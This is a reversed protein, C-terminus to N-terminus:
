TMTVAIHATDVAIHVGQSSYVSFGAMSSTDPASWGDATFLHLTDGAKGDITLVNDLSTGNVNHNDPNIDLVDALHLTADTPGGRFGITEIGSIKGRDSTAPNGDLNGFDITGGFLLYLGDNGGGGDVHRFTKDAVTIQDNGQGAEFSDAGGGGSLFDDGGGVVFNEAAAKGNFSNSQENGAYTVSTAMDRGFLVYTAHNSYDSITLDSFGDGNIDGASAVTMGFGYSGNPAALKFGASATLNALDIHDGFGGAHGFVLYAEGPNTGSGNTVQHSSVVLDAFGDGNFDGAGAVSWGNADNAAAGDLRFGHAADLTTLDVTAGFGGSQGFVVYTAGANTKGAPDAAYVGVVLDALGDGNLDGASSVNTFGPAVMGTGDTVSVPAIKFGTTGNLGDVNLSAGFAGGHGFIVFSEGSYSKGKNAAGRAGLIIDDYGDGNIDGASAVSHGLLTAPTSSIIAVGNTGNLDSGTINAAFAGAHGFILYAQGPVNTTAGASGVLMDDYGDGNVDGAAAVSWGFQDGNGGGSVKFGNSGNLSALDFTTGLGAASGFVVHASGSANPSGFFPVGVIVDDYGDGNLDGASSVSWAAPNPGPTSTTFTTSGFSNPNVDAQFNGGHGYVIHGLPGGKNVGIILDDYGDGNVDGASAASVPSTTVKFGNTGDLKTLDPPAAGAGELHVHPSVVITLSGNTLKTFGQTGQNVWGGSLQLTDSSDGDILLTNPGNQTQEGGVLAAVAATDLKLTNAGGGVMSIYEVNSLKGHLAGTLDISAGMNEIFATDYGAGGDLNLLQASEVHIQDNGAAGEFSDLDGGGYFVDAFGTGVFAEAAATGLAGHFATGTFDGGFIVYSSGNPPNAGPAGIALDDYGDGNLDGAASVAAGTYDGAALADLKFGQAPTLKTLDLTANFSGGHGFVVYVDGASNIQGPHAVLFDDYGDGNVDGAASVVASAQLISFGNGGNLEGPTISPDFAGKHGFVVLGSNGIIIDDIGDGNIDGAGQASRGGSVVFGNSGNLTGLDFSTNFAGGHGFVVATSSIGAVLMDAFGDGDVDGAAAVSYGAQANAAPGDLRFGKTADLTALNVTADFAGAHGFIVYASGGSSKGSPDTGPAGIIIDTYGDGNVDGASAVSRGAQDGPAAGTIQFGNSGNLLPVQDAPGKGSHGFLVLASGNTTNPAGLILDAYGDGNIDGASSASSGANLGEIRFGDPTSMTDTNLVAPYAGAHGFVVAAGGGLKTPNGLLLDDYGDGDFDGINALWASGVPTGAGAGDIRFGNSGNLTDLALSGLGKVAVDSEVLLTADGSVFENYSGTQGLPNSVTGALTWGSDLTVSDVTDGKVLLAHDGFASGKTDAIALVSAPDIIVNQPYNSGNFALDLIEISKLAAGFAGGLDIDGGIADLTVTDLGTGGDVHVDVTGLVVIRDDGAEGLLTDWNAGIVTDNGDGGKLVNAGFNGSINNDLANGTGNLPDFGWLELNEVNAGLTYSISSTVVDVGGGADAALTEVVKDKSSDVVYRDDGAGGELVDGSTGGDLTDNGAGGYLTDTDSGGNLKDDGDDGSLTDSDADGSLEDNGTGGAIVDKGRDGSITDDGGAGDLDNAVSNGTIGNRLANGGGHKAVGTLTLYDLNEGLTYDISSIVQDFGGDDALSRSEVVVDGVHDVVYIDGGRGGIMLDANAGGDLTDNGDGGELTDLGAGGLLTDFGDLGKLTDNGENGILTNNGKNGLIVNASANGIGDIDVFGSLTLNELNAGLTYSISSQVLDIGGGKAVSTTETVVDSVDDVVYVDNGQGGEMRDAGTGGDLYDNGEGGRLIDAGGQGTLHDNGGQGNITDDSGNKGDVKNDLDNLFTVSDAHAISKGNEAASWIDVTEGVSAEGPFLFNGSAAINELEAITINNLRVRTDPVGDFTVYVDPGSQTLLMADATMGAGTFQLIDLESPSAPAAGPGFGGFNNILLHDGAAVVFTKNGGSGSGTTM